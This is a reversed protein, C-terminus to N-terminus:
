KGYCNKKEKCGCERGRQCLMRVNIRMGKKKWMRGQGLTPVELIDYQLFFMSINHLRRPLKSIVLEAKQQEKSLLMKYYHIPNSNM